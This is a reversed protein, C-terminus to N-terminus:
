SVQRVVSETASPANTPEVSGVHVQVVTNALERPKPAHGQKNLIERALQYRFLLSRITRPGVTQGNNRSIHHEVFEEIAAAEEAEIVSNSRSGSKEAHTSVDASDPAELGKGLQPHGKTDREVLNDNDRLARVYSTTIEAIEDITLVSLRLHVLFFKERNEQIIRGATYSHESPLEAYENLLNRYKKILAINFSSEDILMCVQLRSCIDPDDLILMTSEVIELMQSPECRDLDDVVLLVRQTSRHPVFCLILPAGIWLTCWLVVVTFAIGPHVATLAEYLPIRTTEAITAPWLKWTILIATAIYCISALPWQRFRSSACKWLIELGQRKGTTQSNLKPRRRCWAALLARLDEGIAAQLGLKDTHTSFSYLSKLRIAVRSFRLYLFMGYAVTGFGVSQIFWNLTKAEDSLTWLSVFLGFMAGILPWPGHRVISARLTLLWENKRGEQLMREFLYAWVEPVSRYKWASFLVTSYRPQHVEADQLRDMILKALFTKGRGWHGFIAMSMREDEHAGSLLDAVVDAYGQAGLGIEAETAERRYSSRSGIRFSETRPSGNAPTQPTGPERNRDESSADRASAQTSGHVASSAEITEDSADHISRHQVRNQTGKRLYVKGNRLSVERPSKRVKVAVITVERGSDPDSGSESTIEIDPPHNGFQERIRPKSNKIREQDAGVLEFKKGTISEKVGIYIVGGESNAFACVTSALATPHDETKFEVTDSEGERLARNFEGSFPM